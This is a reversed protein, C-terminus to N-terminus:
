GSTPKARDKRRFESLASLGDTADDLGALPDMAGKTPPYLEPPATKVADAANMSAEFAMNERQENAKVLEKLRATPPVPGLPRIPPVEGTKAFHVVESELPAWGRRRALTKRAAAIEEPARDVRPGPLFEEIAPHILWSPLKSKPSLVRAPLKLDRFMAVLRDPWEETLWFSQALLAARVAPAQEEIHGRPSERPPAIGAAAHIWNWAKEGHEANLLIASIDHLGRLYLCIQVQDGGISMSGADVASLINQQAILAPELGDPLELPSMRPFRRECRRCTGITGSGVNAGRSRDHGLYTYPHRCAPCHNVLLGHTPCIPAFAYRWIKRYYPVADDAICGPCFPISTRQFADETGALPVIWEPCGGRARSYVIGEDSAYGRRSAEDPLVAAGAAIASLFGSDGILDLDAGQGRVKPLCINRFQQLSLANGAAIRSLWSSLVEGALPKPRVPWSTNALSVM